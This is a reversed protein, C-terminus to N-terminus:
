LINWLEIFFFGFSTLMYSAPRLFVLIEILKAWIDGRVSIQIGAVKLYQCLTLMNMKHDIWYGKSQSTPVLCPRDM